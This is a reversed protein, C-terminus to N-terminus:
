IEIRKFNALESEYLNVNFTLFNLSDLIDNLNDLFDFHYFPEGPRYSTFTIDTVVIISGCYYLVDGIKYKSKM